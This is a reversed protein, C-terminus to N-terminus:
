VAIRFGLGADPPPPPNQHRPVHVHLPVEHGFADQVKACGHTLLQQALQEPTVQSGLVRLQAALRMLQSNDGRALAQRLAQGTVPLELAPSRALAPAPCLTSDFSVNPPLPLM